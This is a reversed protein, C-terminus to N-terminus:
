EQEHHGKFEVFPSLLLRGVRRLARKRGASDSCSRCLRVIQGGVIETCTLHAPCLPRNCRQCHGFCDVCSVAGCDACFGGPPKLCGCDCGIQRGTRYSEIGGADSVIHAVDKQSWQRENRNWPDHVVEQDQESRIPKM